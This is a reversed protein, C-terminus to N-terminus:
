KTLKPSKLTENSIAASDVKFEIGKHSITDHSKPRSKNKDM